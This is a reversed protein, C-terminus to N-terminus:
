SIELDQFCGKEEWRVLAAAESKVLRTLETYQQEPPRPCVLREGKVKEPTRM